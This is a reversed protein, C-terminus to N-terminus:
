AGPMRDGRRHRHHHRGHPKGSRHHPRHYGHPGDQKRWDDLVKRQRDTLVENYVVNMREARLTQLEAMLEAHRQAHMGMLQPDFDPGVAHEQMARRAERVAEAKTRREEAGERFIERVQKRQDPTLKLRRMPYGHADGDRYRPHYGRRHQAVDTIQSGSNQYEATQVGATPDASALTSFGASLALAALWTSLTRAPNM